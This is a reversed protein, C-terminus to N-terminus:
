WGSATKAMKTTKKKRALRRFSNHSRFRGWGWFHVGCGGTKFFLHPVGPGAHASSVSALTNSPSRVVSSRRSQAFRSAPFTSGLTQYASSHAQTKIGESHLLTWILGGGGWGGLWHWSLIASTGRFDILGDPFAGANKQYTAMFMPDLLVM